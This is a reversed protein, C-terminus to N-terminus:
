FTFGDIDLTSKLNVNKDLSPIYLSLEITYSDSTYHTLIKIKKIKIRPEYLPLYTSIEYGLFYAKSESLTEFLYKRLDLEIEPNLLRSCFQTTLINKVSNLVSKENTLLSIDKYDKDAALSPTNYIEPKLDNIDSYLIDEKLIKNLNIDSDVPSSLNYRKKIINTLDINAM